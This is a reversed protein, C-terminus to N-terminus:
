GSSLVELASGGLVFAPNAQDNRAILDPELDVSKYLRYALVLSPVTINPTYTVLRPLDGDPGPVAACVAARLAVIQPYTDDAAVEAQDDLLDTVSERAAVADDFSVFTEGVTIEALRCVTLRQVLAVLSDFNAQEIVRNKTTAPPRTGANFEYVSKVATTTLLDFLGSLQDVVDQPSRAVADVDNILGQALTSVQALQQATANVADVTAAIATTALTLAEVVETMIVGPKYAALFSASLTARLSQAASLTTATTDAVATPQIPSSPTQTVEFSFSAMGGDQSTERVRFEGVAVTMTGYYPHKLTGTGPAELADLLADRQSLYDSGLVYGEIPFTRAKRGLDEAYPDDRKPYEHIVLKRGGSREATNVFFPVGRFSAPGAVQDRWSM